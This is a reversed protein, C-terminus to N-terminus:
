YRIFIQYTSKITKIFFKFTFDTYKNRKISSKFMKEETELFTYVIKYVCPLLWWSINPMIPTRSIEDVDELISISSGVKLSTRPHEGPFKRLVFEEVTVKTSNQSFKSCFWLIILSRLFVKQYFEKQHSSRFLYVKTFPLHLWNQLCTDKHFDILAVSIHALIHSFFSFSYFILHFKSAFHFKNWKIISKRLSIVNENKWQNLLFKM